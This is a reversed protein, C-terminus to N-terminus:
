KGPRFPFISAAEMSWGAFAKVILWDRCSLYVVEAEAKVAGLSSVLVADIESGISVIEKWLMRIKGGVGGVYWQWVPVKDLRVPPNASKEFRTAELM